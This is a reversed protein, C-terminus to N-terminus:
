DKVMNESIMLNTLRKISAFSICFMPTTKGRVTHISLQGVIEETGVDPKRKVPKVTSPFYSM